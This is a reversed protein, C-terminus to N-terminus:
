RYGLFGGPMAGRQRRMIRGMRPQWPDQRQINERVGPLGLDTRRSRHVKKEQGGADEKHWRVESWPGGHIEGNDRDTM